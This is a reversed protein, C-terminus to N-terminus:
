NGGGDMTGEEVFCKERGEAGGWGDGGSSWGKRGVDLGVVLM